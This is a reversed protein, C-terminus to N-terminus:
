KGMGGSMAGGMGLGMMPMGMGAGILSTGIGLAQMLGSNAPQSPQVTTSGTAGPMGSVLSLLQQSQLLPLDQQTYFRRIQEDLTAQEMARQQGGVTGLIDWPALQQQMVGPNASVAQTMAGLGTQYNRLYMDALSDSIGRSTGEIARGEAVGQRTAGGSYMGGAVTSGTRVGPLIQEMLNRTTRDTVAQAAADVYQNPRLMQDPDLLLQQATHARGALDRTSDFGATTYGEQARRELDTFPAIGSGGFLAPTSEAYQRIHPLALDFIEQQHPGLTVTNTQTVPSPRGGM